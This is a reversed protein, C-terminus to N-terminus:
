ALARYGFQLGSTGGPLNLINGTLKARFRAERVMEGLIEVQQTLYAM